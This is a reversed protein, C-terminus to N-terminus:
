SENVNDANSHSNRGGVSTEHLFREQWEPRMLLCGPRRGFWRHRNRAVLRYARDRVPRPVGSLLWALNWPFRLHRVIHLIADSEVFATGREILVVSDTDPPRQLQRLAAQGASSQLSAFWWNGRPDRHLIFKVSAHCLSCSGDFLVLAKM